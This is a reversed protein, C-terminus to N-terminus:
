QGGVRMQQKVGKMQQLMNAWTPNNPDIEKAKLFLKEAHEIHEIRVKESPALMTGYRYIVNAAVALTMPHTTSELVKKAKVAFPGQAGLPDLSTPQGNYALGDVGLIGLGYLYGLRWQWEGSMPEIEIARLLAKESLEKDHLQFFKAANGFVRANDPKALMQAQWLQKAKAYTDPDAMEHGKPDISAEFISLVQADPHNQILWLINKRRNQKAVQEGLPMWQYFYYGLLKTRADLNHPQKQLLTELEEAEYRSMTSGQEALQEPSLIERVVQAEVPILAALLVLAATSISRM